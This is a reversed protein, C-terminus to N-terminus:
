HRFSRHNNFVMAIGHEDAAAIVEEDRISGGPQVIAVVGNQAAVDVADRFPFFAESALVSGRINEKGKYCAIMASDVRATQGGGIGVTRTGSAFVLANSRVHKVCKAAFVLAKIQEPTPKKKTVTRWTAPDFGLTDRDQVLVGGTVSRVVLGGQAVSGELGEVQLLRLNKKARLLTLAEPSFSPAIVLELFVKSLEKALAGPLTRNVVVVGGFPSYTDTAYADAWARVLDPASAIGSPTAHKIIVVSPEQFEKIAEIATDADLINNYSLEKGHLQKATSASPENGFIRLPDDYFAAKQHHNEGYRLDARKRLPLTLTAPFKEGGFRQGLWHSIMADYRSTHSFAKVALRRRTEPSTSKNKQLEALVNAYDAPETVVTVHAHNKAAARVMAPGGVDILEVAEDVSVGNKGYVSEFPYLNVCVLDIAQIGQQAIQARHSAADRRALIGGHVKPHLTKVRGDLIEPFGTLDSVEQVALGAKALEKHTGGTSVLRFGIAVLGKAFDLLGTKDSVSLLALPSEV